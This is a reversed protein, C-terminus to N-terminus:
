MTIRAHTDPTGLIISNQSPIIIVEAIITMFDYSQVLVKLEIIKRLKAFIM